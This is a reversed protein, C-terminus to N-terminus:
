NGQSTRANKALWSDLATGADDSGADKLVLTITGSASIEVREVVEGAARAAKLAREVDARRFRVRGM